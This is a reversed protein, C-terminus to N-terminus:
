RWQAGMISEIEYYPDATLEALDDTLLNTVTLGFYVQEAFAFM